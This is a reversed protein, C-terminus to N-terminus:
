SRTVQQRLVTRMKEPTDPMIATLYIEHHLGHRALGNAGIFAHIRAMTPGEDDFPGIHMIQVSPGEHFTEFRLKPLAPLDKKRGVEACAERVMAETVFDPQMVMSTWCLQDKRSPDYPSGDRTRWLGELPMVKYDHTEAGKKAMFKLTYSVAFLAAAAEKYAVATNPDGEGDVMLFQMPPVDVLVPEKASPKYLAAREKKLDITLM